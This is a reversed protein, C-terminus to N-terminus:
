QKIINIYIEASAKDSLHELCYRQPTFTNIKELFLTLKEPFENKDKFFLGSAEHLYPATIPGYITHGDPYTFSGPNWVLTPVNRAWAEQLALGQSEVKQLYIMYKAENNLYEFYKEATYSGYEIVIYEMNRSQLENLVFDFLEQDVDKKFVLCKLKEKTSITQSVQTGAPWVKIKPSLEPVIDTYMKQTWESPMLITDINPDCIIKNKDLPSVVLNPGAILKKIQGKEKRKINQKLVQIGSLVHVTKHSPSIPNFEFPIGLETLGRKLSDAVADPGSYKRIAKKAVYKWFEKTFPNNTHTYITIM